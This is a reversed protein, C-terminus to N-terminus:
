SDENDKPQHYARKEKEVRGNSVQFSEGIIKEFYDLDFLFNPNSDLYINYHQWLVRLIQIGISSKTKKDDHIHTDFSGVEMDEFVNAVIIRKLESPFMDIIERELGLVRLLVDFDEITKIESFARTKKQFKLEKTSDSLGRVEAEGNENATLKIRSDLEANGGSNWLSNFADINKITFIDYIPVFNTEGTFENTNESSKVRQLKGAFKNNTIVEQIIRSINESSVVVRTDQIKQVISESFAFNLFKDSAEGLGIDMLVNKISNDFYKFLHETIISDEGLIFNEFEQYFYDENNKEVSNSYLKFVARIVNPFAATSIATLAANAELNAYNFKYGTVLNCVLFSLREFFEVLEPQAHASEKVISEKHFLLFTLMAYMEPASSIINGLGRKDPHILCVNEGHENVVKLDGSWEYPAYGPFAAAKTAVLGDALRWPNKLDIKSEPKNLLANISNVRTLNHIFPTLETMYTKNNPNTESDVKAYHPNTKRSQAFRIAKRTKTAKINKRSNVGRLIKVLNTKISEIDKEQRDQNMFLNVIRSVDESFGAIAITPKEFKEDTSRIRKEYTGDHGSM